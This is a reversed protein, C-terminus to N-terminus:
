AEHSISIELELVSDTHEAQNREIWSQIYRGCEWVFQHRMDESALLIERRGVALGFVAAEAVIKPPTEGSGM